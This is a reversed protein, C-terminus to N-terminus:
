IIQYYYTAAFQKNETYTNVIISPRLQYLNCIWFIAGADMFHIIGTERESSLYM